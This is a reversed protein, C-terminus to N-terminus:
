TNILRQLITKREFRPRLPCCVQPVDVRNADARELPKNRQRHLTKRSTPHAEPSMLWVFRPWGNRRLTLRKGPRSSIYGDM